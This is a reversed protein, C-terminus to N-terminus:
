YSSLYGDGQFENGPGPRDRGNEPKDILDQQASREFGASAGDWAPPADAPAM